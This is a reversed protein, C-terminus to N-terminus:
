FIGTEKDKWIRGITVENDGELIFGATINISFANFIFIITSMEYLIPDKLWCIHYTDGGIDSAYLDQM